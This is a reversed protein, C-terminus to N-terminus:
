LMVKGITQLHEFTRKTARVDALADHAGEFTEHFLFKYAEILKPWKYEGYRGPIQCIDTTAKMTCFLKKDKLCYPVGLKIDEIEIIKKDFDINHAVVVEAIKTLQHFLSMASRLPVGYKLAYETSIGHVAEAEKPIEFGEPKVIVNMEAIIEEGEFLIAGLQVLRPQSSDSASLKHKVVGTSESDYILTIM